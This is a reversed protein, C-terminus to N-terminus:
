ATEVCENFQEPNRCEVIPVICHKNKLHGWSYENYNYKPVNDNNIM